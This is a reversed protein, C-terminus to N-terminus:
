QQFLYATLWTIRVLAHKEMEQSVRKAPVLTLDLMIKASPMLTVIMLVPLVNTSIQSFFIKKIVQCFNIIGELAINNFDFSPRFIFIIKKKLSLLRLWYYLGIKGTCTKGKGTFGKKCTCTYSGVNNKCKANVDCADAGTSCENIDNIYFCPIM